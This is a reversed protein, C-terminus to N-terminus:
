IYVELFENIEKLLNLETQNSHIEMPLFKLYEKFVSNDYNINNEQSPYLLVVKSIADKNLRGKDMYCLQSYDKMTAMVTTDGYDNYIYITRRYKVECVLSQKYEGNQYLQIIVDPRRCTSNYSYLGSYRNEVKNPVEKDYSVVLEINDKTFHTECESPIDLEYEPNKIVESLWGKKCKFGNDLIINIVQLLCYYEFLLETKKYTYSSQKFQQYEESFRNKHIVLKEIIYKYRMDKISKNCSKVINNYNIMERFNSLMEFSEREICDLLSRINLIKNIKEEYLDLQINLYKKRSYVSQIYRDSFIYSKSVKNYEKAKSDFLLKLEDRKEKFYKVKNCIYTYNKKIQNNYEELALYMIMNDSNLLTNNIKPQICKNQHFSKRNKRIVAKDFKILKSSYEYNKELEYAPNNLILYLNDRVEEWNKFQNKYDAFIDSDISKFKANREIEYNFLINKFLQRIYKHLNEIQEWTASQPKIKFYFFETKFNKEVYILYDGPILRNDSNRKNINYYVGNECKCKNEKFTDIYISDVETNDFEFKISCEEYEKVEFIIQTHNSEELIVERINEKDDKLTIKIHTDM